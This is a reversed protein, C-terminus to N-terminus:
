TGDVANIINRVFEPASALDNGYESEVIQTAVYYISATAEASYLIIDNVGDNFVVYSRYTFETEYHAEDINILVSTFQITIGNDSFRYDINEDAAFFAVGKGIGGANHNNDYDTTEFYALDNENDALKVLIGYEKVTYTELAQPAKHIEAKFRLGQEGTTRIATGVLNTQIFARLRPGYTTIFWTNDFDLASFYAEDGINEPAVATAYISSGNVHYNNECVMVLEANGKHAMMADGTSSGLGVCNRIFARLGFCHGFIEAAYVSGSITGTNLCNEALTFRDNAASIGGAFSAPDTITVNGFNACGIFSIVTEGIASNSCRAYGAIGGACQAGNIAANNVCNTVKIYNSSSTSTTTITGVIGGVYRSGTIVGNNVCGTIDVYAAAHPGIRGVIGATNDPGGNVTGNNVCNEIKAYRSENIDIRACIGGTHSSASTVNVNSVCNSIVCNFAFGVIGGAATSTATVTGSVTLNKITAGDIYGFLGVNATGAISLGSVSYGCGDFIGTFKNTSNGIPSQGSVGTLDIDATLYFNQTWVSSDGMLDILEAATGIPTGSPTEASVTTIGFPIAAIIFLLALVYSFPRKM